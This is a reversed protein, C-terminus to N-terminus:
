FVNFLQNSRKLPLDELYLKSVLFLEDRPFGKIGAAVAEHNNYMHATDVHRYGVDLAMKVSKACEEGQLKWTGFGLPPM